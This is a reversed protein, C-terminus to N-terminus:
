DIMYLLQESPRFQLMEAYLCKFLSSHFHIEFHILWHININFRYLAWSFLTSSVKHVNVLLPLTMCPMHILESRTKLIVKINAVDFCTHSMFNHVCRGEDLM